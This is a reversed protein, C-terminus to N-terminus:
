NGPSFRGSTQGTSVPQKKLRKSRTFLGSVKGTSTRDGVSGGVVGSTAGAKLNYPRDVLGPVFLRRRPVYGIHALFDSLNIRRVASERAESIMQKHQAVIDSIHQRQADNAAESKEPIRGIVLYKITLDIKKDENEVHEHWKDPFQTYVVRKGDDFACAQLIEFCRNEFRSGRVHFLEDRADLFQERIPEFGDAGVRQAKCENM